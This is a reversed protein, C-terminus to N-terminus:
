DGFYFQNCYQLLLESDEEELFIPEWPTFWDQYELRARDPQKYSDLEGVIRVAPGGTCLLIQFEVAELKNGLSTWGSRVEISLPDEQIRDRASDEDFEYDDPEISGNAINEAVWEQLEETTEKSSFGIEAEKLLEKCKKRPLERAYQLAAKEPDLAEMMERISELQSYAQKEARSKEQEQATTM